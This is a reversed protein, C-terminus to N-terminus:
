GLPVRVVIAARSPRLTFRSTHSELRKGTLPDHVDIRVKQGRAIPTGATGALVAGIARGDSAKAWFVRSGDIERTWNPVDAPLLKRVAAIGALIRDVNPAEWVNAARTFPHTPGPKALEGGGSVGAGTHLTFAAGGGIWTLAAYMTLRRPDDDAAVSSRPGQGEDNAWALPSISAPTWAERVYRWAGAGGNGGIRPLHVTLLTSGTDRYWADIGEAKLEQPSTVAVVNFTQRLLKALAQAEAEKAQWGTSWLENGVEIAQVKERRPALAGVFRRVLAERGQPTPTSDIAGFISWEVRLGYKDFALDTLGSISADSESAGVYRDPWDVVGLVRIYDVGHEALYALNRELRERDHVFGWRAWFLSHGVALFPGGDDVYVRRDLRVIGRRHPRPAQGGAIARDARVVYRRPAPGIVHFPYCTVLTLSADSSRDVVWLDGPEVVFTDRVVYDFAGHRTVLRIEDRPIVRSLASFVTDRHGAIASNGPEWPLPTGRVHGAAVRLTASDDGEAVITSLGLRKIEIRGVLAPDDVVVRATSADALASEQRTQYSSAEFRVGAYWALCLIGVVALILELPGFIPRKM